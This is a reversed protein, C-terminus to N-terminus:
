FLPITQEDELKERVYAILQRAKQAQEWEAPDVINKATVLVSDYLGATMITETELNYLGAYTEKGGDVTQFYITRCVQKSKNLGDLRTNMYREIRAKEQATLCGLKRLDLVITLAGDDDLRSRSWDILTRLDDPSGSATECDALGNKRTAEVTWVEGMDTKFIIINEAAAKIDTIKNLIFNSKAFQRSFIIFQEQYVNIGTACFEEKKCKKVNEYTVKFWNGANNLVTVAATIVLNNM